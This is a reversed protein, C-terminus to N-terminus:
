EMAGIATQGRLQDGARNHIRVPHIQSAQPKPKALRAVGVYTAMALAGPDQRTPKGRAAVPRHRQASKGICYQAGRPVVSMRVEVRKPLATLKSPQLGIRPHRFRKANWNLVGVDPHEVQLAALRQEECDLAPSIGKPCRRAFPNMGPTSAHRAPPQCLPQELVRPQLEFDLVLADVEDHKGVPVSKVVPRTRSKPDMPVSAVAARSDTAQDPGASLKSRCSFRRALYPNSQAFKEWLGTTAIARAMSQQVDV